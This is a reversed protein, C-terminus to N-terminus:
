RRTQPAPYHRLLGKDSIRWYACGIVLVQLRKEFILMDPIRTRHCGLPHNTQREPLLARFQGPEPEVVWTVGASCYEEHCALVRFIDLFAEAV